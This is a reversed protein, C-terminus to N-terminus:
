RRAADVQDEARRRPLDGDSAPAVSSASAPSGGSSATTAGGGGAGVGATGARPNAAGPRRQGRESAPAAAAGLHQGEGTDTVEPLDREVRHLLQTIIVRVLNGVLLVVAVVMIARAAAEQPTIASTLLMAAIPALALLAIAATIRRLPGPSM